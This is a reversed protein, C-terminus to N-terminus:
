GPGVETFLLGPMAGKPCSFRHIIEFFFFFFFFFGTANPAVWPLVVISPLVGAESRPCIGIRSSSIDSIIFVRM